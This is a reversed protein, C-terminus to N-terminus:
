EMKSESSGQKYKGSLVDNGSFAIIAMIILAIVALVVKMDIDM